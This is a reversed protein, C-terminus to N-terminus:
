LDVRPTSVRDLRALLSRLDQDWFDAGSAKAFAPHLNIYRGGLGIVCDLGESLRLSDLEGVLRKAEASAAEVGCGVLVADPREHRVHRVFDPTPVDAGLYRVDWGRQSLADAIMRLGVDHQNGAASGIVAKRDVPLEGPAASSAWAMLRQVINTALHEDAVSLRGQEYWSGVRALAAEFVDVYLDVLALGSELAERVVAKAGRHDGEVIGAFLRDAWARVRESDVTTSRPVVSASLVNDVVGSALRYVMRRGDRTAEVIGSERLRGLHNSVNPQKLGTLEVIEGVSRPQQRLTGLIARRSPDALEQLLSPSSLM